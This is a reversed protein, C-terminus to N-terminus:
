TKNKQYKGEKYIFKDGEQANELLEKPFDIEELAEDRNETIDFLWARDEAKESMEYVHGEKRQSSLYIEQEQLIKNKLKSLEESIEKTAEYDLTYKEEKKRIVSGIEAGYPLDQKNIEIVNHSKGEECICMNYTDLKQSSKSYIYYMQGKNSTQKAYNNLIENRELNMKDRYTTIMKEEVNELLNEEKNEVNNNPMKNKELYNELEEILHKIFANEKANNIINNNLNLEM